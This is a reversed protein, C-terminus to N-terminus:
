EHKKRWKELKDYWIKGYKQHMLINLWCQEWSFGYFVSQEMLYSSMKEVYRDNDKRPYKKRYEFQYKTNDCGDPSDRWDIMELLQDLRPLWVKTKLSIVQGNNAEIRIIGFRNEKSVLRIGDINEYHEPTFQPMPGIRGKCYFYYDDDGFKWLKQIEKAKKCMEIYESSTDM